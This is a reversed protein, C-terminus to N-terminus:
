FVISILVAITFLVYITIMKKLEFTFIELLNSEISKSVRLKYNLVLTM